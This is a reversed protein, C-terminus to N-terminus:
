QGFNKSVVYYASGIKKIAIIYKDGSVGTLGLTNDGSATGDSVCLSTAPFTFVSSAASLTVEITIDDGTFSITFTRTASSTALTHKTDTLDMTSGDVLAVATNIITAGGSLTQYASWTNAVTLEGYQPTITGSILGSSNGTGLYDTGRVNSGILYGFGGNEIARLASINIGSSSTSTLDFGHSVSGLAVCNSIVLSLASATAGRLYFGVQCSVAVCNSIHLYNGGGSQFDFGRTTSAVVKINNIFHTVSSVTGTGQVGIPCTWITGSSVNVGFFGPAGTFGQLIVGAGSNFVEFNSLTGLVAPAYSDSKLIIGDSTHYRCRINSYTGGVNKLAIGHTAFYTDVNIVTPMYANEMAIGHFASAATRGLLTVNRVEINKLLTFPFTTTASGFSLCNGETGGATVYDSGCDIGLDIIHIDDKDIFLLGGKIITGGVLATPHTVGLVAYATETHISNYGSKGSGVVWLNARLKAAAPATYDGPNIRVVLSTKAAGADLAASITAFPKDPRNILGTVDSGLVDVFVTDTNPITSPLSALTTGSSKILKGTIGDFLAVENDVASAPGVVDGSGGVQSAAANTVIYSKIINM